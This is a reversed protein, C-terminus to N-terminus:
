GKVLWSRPKLLDFPSDLLDFPSNRDVYSRLLFFVHLKTKGVLKPNARRGAPEMGGVSPFM